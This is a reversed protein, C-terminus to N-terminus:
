NMRENRKIAWPLQRVAYYFLSAWSLLAAIGLVVINWPVAGAWLFSAVSLAVGAAFLGAALKGPWAAFAAVRRRAMFLGGLLMLLEKMAMLLFLVLYILRGRRLWICMLAAVTMLKDALPDLLMGLHSVWGYRRALWGDLIDTFYAFTFVALAAAFSDSLFLGAFVGVLALRTASLANPIHRM